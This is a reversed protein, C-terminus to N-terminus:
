LGHVFETLMGDAALTSNMVDPAFCRRALDLVARGSPAQRLAGARMVDGIKLAARRPEVAKALFLNSAYIKGDTDVAVGGNYLPAPGIRRANVVEVAHGRASLRSIVRGAAALARGLEDLEGPTWRAYYVPLFNFRRLGGAIWSALRHAAAAAQEGPFFLFNAAVNPLRAAASSPRSLSVEVHPRTRLFRLMEGDLARGNTPLEIRRGPAVENILEVARRVSRPVLLPEGGFLKVPAGAAMRGLLRDVAAELVTPSMDRRAFSQPCYGCRLDCRRTLVLTLPAEISPM